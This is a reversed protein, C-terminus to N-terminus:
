LAWSIPMSQHRVSGGKEPAGTPRDTASFWSSLRWMRANSRRMSASDPPAAGGATLLSLRARRTGDRQCSCSRHGNFASYASGAEDVDEVAHEVFADDDVGPDADREDTDVQDRDLGADHHRRDVGIQLVGFGHTLHSRDGLRQCHLRRTGGVGHERLVGLEPPLERGALSASLAQAPLEGGALGASLWDRGRRREGALISGRPGARGKARAAQPPRAAGEAPRRPARPPPAGSPRTGMTARGLYAPM